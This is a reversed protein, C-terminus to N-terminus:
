AREGLLQLAAERDSVDLKKVVNSLHRRVTVPSVFLQEAAQVTTLGEHILEFVEWERKTLRMGRGNEALSRRGQARLADILSIVLRRPVVAEGKIVSQLANPLRAPDLDMMLYGIAGARLAGILSSDSACASLMIVASEPARTSIERAAWLGGGPLELDLLSLEPRDRLCLEIAREASDAEGVIEFLSARLAQRLGIRTPAHGHAIVISHRGEM